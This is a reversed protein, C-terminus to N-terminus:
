DLSPFFPLFLTSSGQMHLLLSFLTFRTQLLEATHSFGHCGLGSSRLTCYERMMHENVVDQSELAESFTMHGFVDKLQAQVVRQLASCLDTMDYCAKYIDSIRYYMLAKVELVVGDKTLQEVTDFGYVSERMDVRFSSTKRTVMGGSSKATTTQWSFQKFKILEPVYWHMGATYVGLVEGLRLALIGEGCM